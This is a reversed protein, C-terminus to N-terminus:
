LSLATAVESCVVGWDPVYYASEGSEITKNTAVCQAPANTTISLSNGLQATAPVSVTVTLAVKIVNQSSASMSNFAEVSMIGQQPIFYCPAEAQIEEGTIVCKTNQKAKLQRALSLDRNSNDM